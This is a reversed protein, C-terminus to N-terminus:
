QNIWDGTEIERCDGYGEESLLYIYAETGDVLTVLQKDYFNNEGVGRYGELRDLGHAQEPTVEYVEVQIPTPTKHTPLVGPFGGLHVMRYEGDLVNDGIFKAERLLYSNGQGKRLTGYVAVLTTNSM